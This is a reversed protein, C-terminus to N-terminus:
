HALDEPIMVQTVESTEEIVVPSLEAIGGPLMVVPWQRPVESHLEQPTNVPSAPQEQVYNLSCPM